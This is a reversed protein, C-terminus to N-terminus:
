NLPKRCHSCVKRFYANLTGCNRCPFWSGNFIVVFRKNLAAQSDLVLRRQATKADQLSPLAALFSM